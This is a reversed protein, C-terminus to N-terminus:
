PDTKIRSSKLKLAAEAIPSAARKRKAPNLFLHLCIRAAHTAHNFIRRQLLHLDHDIDTFEDGAVGAKGPEHDGQRHGNCSSCDKLARCSARSARSVATCLRLQRSNTAPSPLQMLRTGSSNRCESGLGPSTPSAARGHLRRLPPTGARRKDPPFPQACKCGHPRSPCADAPPAGSWPPPALSKTSDQTSTYHKTKRLYVPAPIGGMECLAHIPHPVPLRTASLSSM